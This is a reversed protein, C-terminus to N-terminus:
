LRCSYQIYDPTIDSDVNDFVFITTKDVAPVFSSFAPLIENINALVKIKLGMSDTRKSFDSFSIQEGNIFRNDMLRSEGDRELRRSVIVDAADSKVNCFTLEVEAFDMAPISETGSFIVNGDAKKDNMGWNIADLINTKGTNHSGFLVNIGESFKILRRTPFTKFGHITMCKLYTRETTGM